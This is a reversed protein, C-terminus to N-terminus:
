PFYPACYSQLPQAVYEGWSPEQVTVSGNWAGSEKMQSWEPPWDVRMLNPGTALFEAPVLPRASEIGSETRSRWYRIQILPQYFLGLLGWRCAFQEIAQDSEVDIGVLDLYLSKEVTSSSRDFYSEFPDYEQLPSSTDPLIYGKVIRYERRIWCSGLWQTRDYM